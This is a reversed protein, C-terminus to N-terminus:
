NDPVCICFDIITATHLLRSILRVLSTINHCGHPHPPILITKQSWIPILFGFREKPPGGEQVYEDCVGKKCTNYNCAGGGGGEMTPPVLVPQQLRTPDVNMTGLIPSRAEQDTSKCNISGVPHYWPRLRSNSDCNPSSTKNYSSMEISDECAFDENYLYDHQNTRRSSNNSSNDDIEKAMASTRHDFTFLKPINTNMPHCNDTYCDVICKVGGKSYAKSIRLAILTM